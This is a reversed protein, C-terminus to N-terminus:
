QYQKQKQFQVLWNKDQMSIASSKRGDVFTDIRKNSFPEFMYKGFPYQDVIPKLDNADKSKYALYFWYTPAALIAHLPWGLAALTYLGIKAAKDKKAQTAIQKDSYM